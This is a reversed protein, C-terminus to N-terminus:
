LTAPNEQHKPVSTLTRGEAVSGRLASEADADKWRLAMWFIGILAFAQISFFFVNDLDPNANLGALLLLTVCAGIMTVWRNVSRTLFLSLLVMLIPVESMVSGILMLTETIEVGNVVGTLMQELMGERGLEHLDRAFTNLCVFIWLISLRARKELDINNM